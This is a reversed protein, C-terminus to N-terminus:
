PRLPPDLAPRSARRERGDESARSSSDSWGRESGSAGRARRGRGEGERRWARQSLLIFVIRQVAPRIESM